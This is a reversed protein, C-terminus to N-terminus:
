RSGGRDPPTSPDARSAMALGAAGAAAIVVAGALWLRSRRRADGTPDYDKRWTVGLSMCENEYLLGLRHRVPEYGDANATPDDKRRIAWELKREALALDEVPKGGILLHPSGTIIPGTRTGTQALAGAM